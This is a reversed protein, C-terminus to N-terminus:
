RLEGIFLLRRYKLIILSYFCFIDRQVKNYLRIDYVSSCIYLRQQKNEKIRIWMINEKTPYIIIYFSQVSFLFCGAYIVGNSDSCTLANTHTYIIYLYTM